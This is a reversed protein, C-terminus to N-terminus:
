KKTVSKELVTWFDPAESGLVWVSIGRLKYKQLIDLKPQLSQGDEIFVYEFVGGNEWFAYNCGAKEHWQPTAESKGLLHQLDTYGIQRGNTFGGKEETYDAYWHVSYSPIGLSLKDPSVGEALLYKVIEEVWEKGAVPGPPTRRTHQDYTMISIFDGIESLEKMAYGARWNEYLFLHYPRPGGVNELMHVLAASLQLGQKHFAEATEKFYLTFYDKDNLHLGELDFQWGDLKYRKAYALMMEISRQRSVPNSVIDHLLQQNFGKNVILPMVKINNAKAIKLVRKDLSGSIVGDKSVFFTQPCVISIQGVNNKFSAFSEPTDIMYFLNESKTQSHGTIAVSLFLALAIFQLKM